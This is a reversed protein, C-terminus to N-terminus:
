EDISWESFVDVLKSVNSPRSRRSVSLSKCLAEKVNKDLKLGKLEDREAGVDPLSGLLLETTIRAWSYIDARADVDDSEAEPARYPDSKWYKNSVTPSGDLLKALEFETLIASLDPKVIVTDPSLERCLIDHEHLVGIARLIDKSITKAQSLGITKERAYNSLINGDVWEDIVWWRDGSDEECTTLNRIIQDSQIRACVEAHRTLHAKCNEKAASSMSVLDYCKGRSLKSIHEHKMRWIRFQLQNSATIWQTLAEELFWENVKDSAESQLNKIPRLQDISELGLAKRLKEATKWTASHKNNVLLSINSVSVGSAFRLDGYNWGKQRMFYAIRDGCLGVTGHKKSEAM